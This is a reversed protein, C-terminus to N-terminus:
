KNWKYFTRELKRVEKENFGFHHAVEHYVTRKVVMKIREETKAFREISDKYITIKDPLNGGFGRGWTNKPVGQYLGLLYSDKRAGGRRRQIDPRPREEVVIAVNDMKTKIETPLEEVAEEVAKEFDELTM